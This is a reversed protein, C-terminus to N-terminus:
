LILARAFYKSRCEPGEEPSLVRCTKLRSGGSGEGNSCVWLRLSEFTRASFSGVPLAMCSFFESDSVIKGGVECACARMAPHEHNDSTGPYPSGHLTVSDDSSIGSPAIIKLNLVVPNSAKTDRNCHIRLRLWRQQALTEVEGGSNRCELVLLALTCYERARCCGCASLAHPVVANMCVM